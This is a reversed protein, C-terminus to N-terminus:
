DIGTMLYFSNPKSVMLSSRLIETKKKFKCVDEYPM